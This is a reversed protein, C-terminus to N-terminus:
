HAEPGPKGSAPLRMADLQLPASEPLTDIKRETYKVLVTIRRNSADTPDKSNRLQQDAFGRVEAVQNGRLGQEHM